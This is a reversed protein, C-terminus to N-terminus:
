ASTNPSEKQSHWAEVLFAGMTVMILAALGLRILNGTTYDGTVWIELHNSPQSALFPPSSQYYVCSYSGTDGVTLNQLSFEVGNEEPGRLQLPNSTGAKLLAFMVPQVLPDLKQCQFTLNGRASVKHNQHIKLSPKPLYGTVLLLLVDSRQSSIDPSGKRYYECTYEGAQSGKLDNLHFEALGETSERSQLVSLNTEGQRLIFDVGMEPTWCRLTVNSQASLVSSRM